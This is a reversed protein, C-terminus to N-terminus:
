QSGQEERRRKKEKCVYQSLILAHEIARNPVDLSFPLAKLILLLLENHVDLLCRLLVLHYTARNRRRERGDRDKKELTIIVLSIHAIKASLLFSINWSVTLM